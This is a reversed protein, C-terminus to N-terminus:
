LLALAKEFVETKLTDVDLKVAGNQALLDKVAKKQQATATKFKAQIKALIEKNKAVDVDMEEVEDAEDQTTPVPVGDVEKVSENNKISEVYAKAKDQAESLQKKQMQAFDEKSIGKVSSKRMAEELIEIVDKAMNPKDFALKDPVTGYAMRGGAEVFGDGRFYLYRNSEVLKGDVVDRDIAGTLIIDFIDGFVAEYTANLTSTFVDYGDTENIAGKPKVNKIKTHAIAVTGIGAKKLKQFAKKLELGARIPGKNYGGFAELISKVPKGTEKRALKVTYAEVLPILEDVVDVGIMKIKHEKGQETIVWDILELFEEFTQVDTSNIEDLLADGDEFGAKVLMGCEPDGFKELVMDRFLTTKGFKREARLYIQLAEINTAIQKVQPKRFAM